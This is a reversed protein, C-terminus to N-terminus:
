MGLMLATGALEKIFGLMQHQNHMDQEKGIATLLKDDYGSNYNVFKDVVREKSDLGTKKMGAYTDGLVALVNQTQADGRATIASTDANQRQIYNSTDQGLKTGRAGLLYDGKAKYNGFRKTEGEILIDQMERTNDQTEAATSQRPTDLEGKTDKVAENYKKEFDSSLIELEEPSAKMGNDELWKQVTAKVSM